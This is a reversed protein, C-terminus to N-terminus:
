PRRSVDGQPPAAGDGSTRDRTARPREGRRGLFVGALFQVGGLVLPVALYWRYDGVSGGSADLYAYLVFWGAVSLWLGVRGTVFAAYLLHDVPDRGEFPRRAWVWLSRAAGLTCVVALGIELASM